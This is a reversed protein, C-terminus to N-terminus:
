RWFEGNNWGVMISDIINKPTNSTADRYNMAAFMEILEHFTIKPLLEHLDGNRVPRDTSKRPALKQSPVESWLNYHLERRKELQSMVEDVWGKDGSQTLLWSRLLREGFM